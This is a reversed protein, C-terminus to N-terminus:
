HSIESKKEHASRSVGCNAITDIHAEDVGMMRFCERETLKRVLAVCKKRNIEFTVMDEINM